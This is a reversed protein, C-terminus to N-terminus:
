RVACKAVPVRVCPTEFPAEPPDNKLSVLVLNTGTLRPGGCELDFAYLLLGGDRASLKPTKVYESKLVELKTKSYKQSYKNIFCVM